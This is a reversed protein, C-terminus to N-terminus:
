ASLESFTFGALDGDQTVSGNRPLGALPHAGHHWFCWRGPPNAPAHRRSRTCCGCLIPAKMMRVAWASPLTRVTPEDIESAVQHIAHLGLSPPKNPLSQYIATRSKDTQSLGRV